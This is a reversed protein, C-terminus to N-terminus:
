VLDSLRPFCAGRYINEVGILNEALTAYAENGTRPQGFTFVRLPVGPFNAALSIGGLSALAAGLSHGTSVLSYTPHAKLESAVTSIIESAVSQHALLFGQHVKVGSTGTVGPSSYDVLAFLLDRHILAVDAM